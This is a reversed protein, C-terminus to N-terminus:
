AASETGPSVEASRGRSALGIGTATVVLGIVALAEVDHRRDSVVDQPVGIGAARFDATTPHPPLPKYSYWGFAGYRPAIANGTLGNAKM